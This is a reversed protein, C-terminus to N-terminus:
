RTFHRKRWILRLVGFILVALVPLGTNTIQILLQDRSVAAEDLKRMRLDKGRAEILGSDDTLYNVANMIFDANGFSEGSYRDYGLPLPQGESSVQNRIMNGDAVVIMSAPVSREQVEYGPPMEVGPNLRNRFLSEFTGELLVAVPQPPGTYLTEDVPRQLIDLSIRVPVPMVRSYQSTKLLIRKNVGPAGVTDISSVFEGRVPNLKSVIEHDSEPTILPYFYWPLLNIQPNGGVYGTIVPHPAANLDKILVPNLRAGYRFFFDDMNIDWALGITESANRLSDMDAFVPDVLWLMAGGQMLFQDLVFKEKESFAERPRAAILTRYDALHEMSEGAEVRDVEYFRELSETVSALERPSLGGKGDLFAIRDKDELTVRRIASALNYELALSSNHLVEPIPVGRQDELLQVAVERGRYSVLAGPFIVRQSTGDGTRMQVQAPELGKQALSRYHEQVREYDEGAEKSPDVFEFQVYDSWARFEDLMERADNRLRRFEVPLNGELYVKVYVVDDIDRLMDRTASTLSYRGESTMDIRAFRVSGVLNLAVVMVFIAALRVLVMRGTNRIEVVAQTFGLFLVIVGAFYLLDRSDIVGRSISTYHAQLGLNRIFLGLSGFLDLSHIMEFGIYLFGCMFLALIFAVIQNQTLSSAFLGASVFVMGIFLLGLYSGWTGGFDVGPPAAYLHITLLYILTPLLSVVVLLVGAFFKALVIQLMTVPKTMLMELTGTRKEDAFFRMTIAPVLFLLVFPALVFLGDLRADGTEIVNFEVPFVWLFLGTIVLFVAVVVYAILSNFFGNFEKKLLAWMDAYNNPFM